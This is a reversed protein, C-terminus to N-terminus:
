SPSPLLINIKEWMPSVSYEDCFLFVWFMGPVLMLRYTHTTVSSLSPESLLSSSLESSRTLTRSCCGPLLAPQTVERGLEFPKHTSSFLPLFWMRGLLGTALRLAEWLFIFFLPVRPQAKEQLERAWLAKAAANKECCSSSMQESSSSNM